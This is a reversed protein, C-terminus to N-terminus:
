RARLPRRIDCRRSGVARSRYIHITPQSCSQRDVHQEKASGAAEIVAYSAKIPTAVRNVQRLYMKARSLGNPKERLILLLCASVPEVRETAILPGVHLSPDNIHLDIM